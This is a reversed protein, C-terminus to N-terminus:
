NGPLYMEQDRCVWLGIDFFKKSAILGTNKIKIKILLQYIWALLIVHKEKTVANLKFRLTSRGRNGLSFDLRTFNRIKKHTFKILASFKAKFIFKPFRFTLMIKNIELFLFYELYEQGCTLFQKQRWKFHKIEKGEIDNPLNDRIGSLLFSATHCSLSDTGSLIEWIIVILNPLLCTCARPPLLSPNENVLLTMVLGKGQVEGQLIGTLDKEQRSSGFYLKAALINLSLHSMENSCHWGKPRQPSSELFLFSPLYLIPSIVSDLVILTEGIVSPIFFKWIRKM